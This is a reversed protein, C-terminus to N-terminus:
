RRRKKADKQPPTALLAGFATEIDLPALSVPKARVTRRNSPKSEKKVSREQISNGRKM